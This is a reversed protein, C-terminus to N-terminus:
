AGNSSQFIIMDEGIIVISSWPLEYLDNFSKKLLGTSQFSPVLVSKIKGSKKDFVMEADWLQGHSSGTSLDVIEKNGIESLRM